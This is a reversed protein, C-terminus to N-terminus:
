DAIRRVSTCVSHRRGAAIPCQLVDGEVELLKM